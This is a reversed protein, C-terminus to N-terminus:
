AASEVTTNGKQRMLGRAAAEADFGLAWRGTIWGLSASLKEADRVYTFEMKSFVTTVILREV